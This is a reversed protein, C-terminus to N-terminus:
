PINKHYTLLIQKWLYNVVYSLLIRLKWCCTICYYCLLYLFDRILFNWCHKTHMLFIHVHDCMVDVNFDYGILKINLEFIFITSSCSSFGEYALVKRIRNININRLENNSIAVNSEKVWCVVHSNAFAFKTLADNTKVFINCSSLHALVKEICVTFTNINM